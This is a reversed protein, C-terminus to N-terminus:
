HFYLRELERHIMMYMVGTPSLAFSIIFIIVRNPFVRYRETYVQIPQMSCFLKKRGFESFVFCTCRLRSQGHYNCTGTEREKERQSPRRLRYQAEPKNGSPKSAGIQIGHSHSRCHTSGFRGKWQPFLTKILTKLNHKLM